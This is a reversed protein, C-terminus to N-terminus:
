KEESILVHKLFASLHMYPIMFSLHYSYMQHLTDKFIYHKLSFLLFCILLQQKLNRIKGIPRLSIDIKNVIVSSKENYKGNSTM